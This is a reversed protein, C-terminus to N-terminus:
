LITWGKKLAVMKLQDDPYVAIPQGVASLLDLDSYGDAYARSERWNIDQGQFYAQVKQLKLEGIVIEPSIDPDFKGHNFAMETGIVTDFGLDAGVKDLLYRYTGSLLVTHFGETKARGIERVVTENLSSRAKQACSSFFIMLRQETMGEFLYNFKRVALVKMQERSLKGGLGLKYRWFLPVLSILIKYYRLRSCNLKRWQSLLFPLTDKLFLTGDFDFIALKM